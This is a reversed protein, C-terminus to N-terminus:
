RNLLGGHTRHQWIKFVKLVMSSTGQYKATEEERCIGKYIEFVLVLVFIQNIGIGAWKSTFFLSFFRCFHSPKLFLVVHM